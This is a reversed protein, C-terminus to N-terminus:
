AKEAYSESDTAATERRRIEIIKENRTRRFSCQWSLEALDAGFRMLKKRLTAPSIIRGTTKEVEASLETATGSFDSSSFNFHQAVTLIVEDMLLIQEGERQGILKWIHTESDLELGLELSEIDRGTCFLTARNETRKERDLVLITDAVGSLGTTGSLMNMPDIDKMKRLHHVCLIAIKHKNALEKLVLLERYDNAYPNANGADSRIFQLTDIVILVTDSHEQMFNEIQESLGSGISEAMISFFLNDPADDTIDLLRSQIRDYSDELCLYLTTGKRCQYNWLCEGKAVNLCLWMMLWSKGVKPSGGIIHLGTPILSPVIFRPTDLTINMLTQGDITQFTKKSM